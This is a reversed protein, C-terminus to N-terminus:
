KASEARVQDDLEHRALVFPTLSQPKRARETDSQIAVEPLGPSHLHRPLNPSPHGLEGLQHGTRVTVSAQGGPTIQVEIQETGTVAIGETAELDHTQVKGDVTVVVHVPEVAKIM